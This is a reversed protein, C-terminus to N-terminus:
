EAVRKGDGREEVKKNSEVGKVDERERRGM